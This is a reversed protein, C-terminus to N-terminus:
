PNPRCTGRKMRGLLNEINEELNVEYEEKTMRDIGCQKNYM